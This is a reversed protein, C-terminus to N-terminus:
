KILDKFEEVMDVPTPDQNYNLALYYSTWDGLYLSSFVKEFVNDGEIEIIEVGIKKKRMLDAMVDFRKKNQPHDNNDRLMIFYFDAQPNTFGVMENHNLEPFFNWFAPTKANENIKIKWIHALMKFYISSYIIPTKGVLKDALEKGQSEIRQTTEKLRKAIESLENTDFEVLGSNILVQFISFVFYGTAMRPQFNEYPYPVKIHPVGNEKCMEEIKGGNSIGICPLNNELAEEFSAITEETNGSYSCIFNLSNEYAEPPLSYFRNQFIELRKKSSDKFTSNVFIRLVNGPLASGGMGSITISKFEGDFKVDKALELGEEIQLYEDLIVRRLNFKDINNEMNKIKFLFLKFILFFNNRLFEKLKLMGTM